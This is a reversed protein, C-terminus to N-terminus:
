WRYHAFAKNAEAMRHVEEKRRVAGGENQSADLIENALRDQMKRESRSRASEVLWRLGLVQKRHENVEVPM